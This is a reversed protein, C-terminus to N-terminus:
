HLQWHFLVGNTIYHGVNRVNANLTTTRGRCYSIKAGAILRLFHLRNVEGGRLNVLDVVDVQCCRCLWTRMRVTAKLLEFCNRFLSEAVLM